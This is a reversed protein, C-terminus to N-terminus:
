AVVILLLLTTEDRFARMQAFYFTAFRATAWLSASLILGCAAFKALSKIFGRDFELYGARVSFGLVLLLNIWAGVATALALGVQALSGMLVIKLLLNVALGSLSAKVPTATDKRAYFASVASRSTVFPILGIAYAALTVAAAAADARTYAGRAFVARVIVDPVALFAAVFPVTALLTFEFARRQSAAAGRDDGATIRQSMEPLLVTGIAIGIVGIPLQYLREAYYLASLAGAPLFTAIITDAFVAVQTGMSGLTAPGIARFFARVDEDLRLPAFRPLGGHRALDGALLFYQLFGSILVGWAAAHGASPFWAALALTMMMSVNLFISAAAASAFRQMVNLMGGYLTVLTILLLYPFTIRTLEIALKRQEADESFGPALLSMAQPMFLWAVILLVVQSALLLTFIRDAFLRAAGEGREGHVHAYAPVWAANFAGEAFIARFHNPLRLAVFFADAVPGAGLIAALMIDRAFGTLRSLLTYGGVTFIRGLM